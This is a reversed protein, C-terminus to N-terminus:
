TESLLLWGLISALKEITLGSTGCHVLTDDITEDFLKERGLFTAAVEANGEAYSALIEARRAARISPSEDFLGTKATKASLDILQRHFARKQRAPLPLQNIRRQFELLDANLGSNVREKSVTFESPPLQLVSLFDFLLSGGAYQSTDYLRVALANKGFAAAWQHLQKRYDWLDHFERVCSDVSHTYGQAKITQNYWSEHAEDQRRVYVVIMPERGDLAGTRGLLEALGNPNPCLYFDESSLLLSGSHERAAKELDRSLDALSREQPSAWEPYGGGILFALDHHGYGRLSVDPYLVGHGALVKRNEFMVRQLLTSGTKPAGIHVICRAPSMM